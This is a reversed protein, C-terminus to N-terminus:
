EGSRHGHPKALIACLALASLKYLIGVEHLGLRAAGIRTRVFFILQLPCLVGIFTPYGDKVVFSQQGFFEEFVRADAVGASAVFRTVILHNPTGVVTINIYERGGVGLSHGVRTLAGREGCANDADLVARLLEVRVIIDIKFRKRASFGEHVTPM